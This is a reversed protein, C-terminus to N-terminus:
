DRAKISVRIDHIGITLNSTKVETTITTYGGAPVPISGKSLNGIDWFEVVKLSGDIYISVKVIGSFIKREHNRIYISLYLPEGQQVEGNVPFLKVTDIGLDWQSQSMAPLINFLLAILLIIVGKRRVKM